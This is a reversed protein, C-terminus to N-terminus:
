WVLFQQGSFSPWTNKMISGSNSLTTNYIIIQQDAPWTLHVVHKSKQEQHEDYKNDSAWFCCDQQAVEM